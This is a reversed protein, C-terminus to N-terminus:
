NLNVLEEIENAKSLDYEAIFKSFSGLKCMIKRTNETMNEVNDKVKSDVDNFVCWCKGEKTDFYLFPSSFTLQKVPHVYIWLAGNANVKSALNILTDIIKGVCKEDSNAYSKYIHKEFGSGEVMTTVLIVEGNANDRHMYKASVIKGKLDFANKVRKLELLKKQSCDKFLEM